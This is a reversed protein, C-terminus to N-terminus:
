RAADIRGRPPVADGLQEIQDAEAGLRGLAQRALEAAALALADADGARERRLRPQDDAVLRQAGEVDRDLGLDDVQQDAQLALEPQGVDENRM